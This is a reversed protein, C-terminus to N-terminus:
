IHVKRYGLNWPFQVGLILARIEDWTITCEGFNAAFAGQCAWRLDHLIGGGSDDTNLTIEVDKRISWGVISMERKPKNKSLTLEGMKMTKRVRIFFKYASSILPPQFMELFLSMIINGFFWCVIGFELRHKSITTGTIIWDSLNLHFFNSPFQTGMISIWLQKVISLRLSCVFYKRTTAREKRRVRSGSAWVNRM